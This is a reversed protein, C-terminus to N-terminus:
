SIINERKRLLVARVPAAEVNPILLPFAVLIYAGAEVHGLRLGELIHIGQEMLTLHTEHGPQSREIGLGDTGVGAVKKEKLYKAGSTELYVFDKELIDEFSNKTKLLIFEKECIEHQELDEKTIMSTVDTCDLVRCPVFLEELRVSDIWEGDPMMHHGSDLHTGTHLNLDLRSEYITANSFDAETTFRPLKEARGKYVPMDPTIKMSIDILEFQRTDFIM